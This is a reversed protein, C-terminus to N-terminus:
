VCHPWQSYFYRSAQKSLGKPQTNYSSWKNIYAQYREETRSDRFKYLLLLSHSHSSLQMASHQRYSSFFEPHPPITVQVFFTYWFQGWVSLWVYSFHNNQYFKSIPNSASFFQSYQKEWVQSSCVPRPDSTPDFCFLLPVLPPFLHPFCMVLWRPAEPKPSRKHHRVKYALVQIHNSYSSKLRSSFDYCYKPDLLKIPVWCFFNKDSNWLKVIVLFIVFPFQQNKETFVFPLFLRDLFLNRFFAWLLIMLNPSPFARLVNPETCKGTSGLEHFLIGSSLRCGIVADGVILTQIPPRGFRPPSFFLIKSYRGGGRGAAKINVWTIKAKRGFGWGVLLFFFFCVPSKNAPKIEVWQLLFFVLCSLNAFYCKNNHWSYFKVNWNWLFLVKLIHSESFVLGSKMVRLGPHAGRGRRM